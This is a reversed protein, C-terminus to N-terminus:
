MNKLPPFVTSFPANRAFVTQSLASRQRLSVKHTSEVSGKAFLRFQGKRLQGKNRLSELGTTELRACRRARARDRERTHRRHRLEEGLHFGDGCPAPAADPPPAAPAAQWMESAMTKIPILAFSVHAHWLPNLCKHLGPPAPDRAPRERDARQEGVQQLCNQAKIVIITLPNQQCAEVGCDWYLRARASCTSTSM